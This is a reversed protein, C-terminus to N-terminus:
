VGIQIGVVVMWSAVTINECNNKKELTECHEFKLHYNKIEFNSLERKLFKM